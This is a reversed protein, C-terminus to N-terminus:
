EFNESSVEYSRWRPALHSYKDLIIGRESICTGKYWIDNYIDLAFDRGVAVKKHGQKLMERARRTSVYGPNLLYRILLQSSGETLAAGVLGYKYYGKSPKRQLFYALGNYNVYGLQPFELSIKDIEVKTVVPDHGERYLAGYCYLRKANHKVADVYLVGDGCLAHSGSLRSNAWEVSDFLPGSSKKM